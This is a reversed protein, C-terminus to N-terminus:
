PRSLASQANWDRPTEIPLSILLNSQLIRAAVQALRKADGHPDDPSDAQKCCARREQTCCEVVEPRSHQLCRYGTAAPHWRSISKVGTFRTAWCVDYVPMWEPCALDVKVGSISDVRIGARQQAHSPGQTQAPWLLVIVPTYVPCNTMLPKRFMFMECHFRMLMVRLTARTGM